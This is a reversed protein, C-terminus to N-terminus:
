FTKMMGSENAFLKDHMCAQWMDAMRNSRLLGPQTAQLINHVRQVLTHHSSQHRLILILLPLVTGDGAHRSSDALQPIREPGVQWLDQLYGRKEVGGAAQEKM